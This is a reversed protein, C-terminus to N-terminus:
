FKITYVVLINHETEVQFRAMRTTYDRSNWKGKHFCSANGCVISQVTSLFATSIWMHLPSFAMIWRHGGAGSSFSCKWSLSLSFYLNEDWQLFWQNYLVNHAVRHPSPVTPLCFKKKNVWRCFTKCNRENKIEGYWLKNPFYTNSIFLGIFFSSTIMRAHNVIPSKFIVVTLSHRLFLILGFGFKRFLSHSCLWKILYYFRYITM